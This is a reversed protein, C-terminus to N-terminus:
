AIFLSIRIGFLLSVVEAPLNGFFSGAWVFLDGQLETILTIVYKVGMETGEEGTEAAPIVSGIGGGLANEGKHAAFQAAGAVKQDQFAHGAAESDGTGHLIVVVVNGNGVVLLIAIQVFIDAQPQDKEMIPICVIRAHGTGVAFIHLGM